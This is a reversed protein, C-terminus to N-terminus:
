DKFKDVLKKILYWDEDNMSLMTKIIRKKYPDNEALFEGILIGLEDDDSLEVFMEGEGTLLWKKNVHYKECIIDINRDTLNIIGSEISAINSRSMKLSDAFDQQTFKLTKRLKKLRSNM